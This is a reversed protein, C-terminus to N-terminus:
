LPLLPRLYLRFETGEGETSDLEVWGGLAEVQAKVIYLGLGRGNVGESEHFRQYLGFVREGYKELNIGRGNDTIRIGAFGKERFSQIRVIPRRLPHRYKMSNTLLNQLISLIYSLPYLLEGLAQFDVEVTAESDIIQWEISELISDLTAKLRIREFGVDKKDKIAVVRVLDNLTQELRSSSLEMKDLIEVNLPNDPHSRDLFQMLSVLNVVPARLNHSTIYAFQQLERNTHLLEQTLLKLEERTTVRKDINMGSIAIGVIENGERVPHWSVEYWTEFVKEEQCVTKGQLAERIPHLFRKEHGPVVLTQLAQGLKVEKGSVKLMATAFRRNFARIRINEDVLVFLSDVNDLFRKWEKDLFHNAQDPDLCFYFLVGYPDGNKGNLSVLNGCIERGFSFAFQEPALHIRSYSSGQLATAFAQKLPHQEFRPFLKELSITQIAEKSLGIWSQLTPNTLQINGSSDLVLVFYNEQILWSQLLLPDAM